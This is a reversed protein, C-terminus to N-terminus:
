FAGIEEGGNTVASTIPERLVTPCIECAPRGQQAFWRCHARIGCMPLQAQGDQKVMQRAISCAGGEWQACDDEVCREGFRFRASGGMRRFAKAEADDLVPLNPTFVM